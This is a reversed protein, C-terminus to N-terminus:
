IGRVSRPSALDLIMQTLAGTGCGVDVWDKGPPVALWALFERAVLRSWRGVFPEYLEGAGWRDRSRAETMARSEGLGLGRETCGWRRSFRRASRGRSGDRLVRIGRRRAISM